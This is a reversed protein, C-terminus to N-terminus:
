RQGDLKSDAERGFDRMRQATREQVERQKEIWKRGVPGKFFAVMAILDDEAFIEAYIEAWITKFADINYIKEIARRRAAKEEASLNRNQMEETKMREDVIMQMSESLRMLTILEEAIAKKQPSVGQALLLRPTSAAVSLTALGVSLSRLTHIRMRRVFFYTKM